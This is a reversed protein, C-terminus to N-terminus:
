GTGRATKPLAAQADVQGTVALHVQMVEGEELFGEASLLVEDDLCSENAGRRACLPALDILSWAWSSAASWGLPRWAIAAGVLFCAHQASVSVFPKASLRVSRRHLEGEQQRRQQGSQLRQQRWGLELLKERIQEPEASDVIKIHRLEEREM